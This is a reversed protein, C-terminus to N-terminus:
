VYLTSPEVTYGSFILRKGYITRYFIAQVNITTSFGEKNELFEEKNVRLPTCLDKCRIVVYKDNDENISKVKLEEKTYEVTDNNIVAKLFRKKFLIAFVFSLTLFVIFHTFFIPCKTFGKILFSIVSFTLLGASLSLLVQYLYNVIKIQKIQCKIKDEMIIKDRYNIKNYM